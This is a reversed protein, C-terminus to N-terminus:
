RNVPQIVYKVLIDKNDIEQMIQEKIDELFIDYEEQSTIVAQRLSVCEFWDSDKLDEYKLRLIDVWEHDEKISGPLLTKAPHNITKLLKYKM